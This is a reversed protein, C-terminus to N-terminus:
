GGQAALTVPVTACGDLAVMLEENMRLWTFRRVEMLAGGRAAETWQSLEKTRGDVVWITVIYLIRSLEDEGGNEVMFVAIEVVGDGDDKTHQCAVEVWYVVVWICFGSRAEVMLNMVLEISRRRLRYPCAVLGLVWNFFAGFQLVRIVYFGDGDRADAFCSFWVLVTTSLDCRLRTCGVSNPM